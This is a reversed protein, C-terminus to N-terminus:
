LNKNIRGTTEVLLGLWKNKVDIKGNALSSKDILEKTEQKNYSHEVFSLEYDRTDRTVFYGVLWNIRLRNPHIFYFKGGTKLVRYTENFFKIAEKENLFPFLLSAMIIDFENNGFPLNVADGIRFDVISEVNYNIANERAIKLSRDLIDVGTIRVNVNRQRLEKALALTVQGPGCGVDLIKFLGNKGIINAVSKAWLEPAWPFFKNIVGGYYAPDYREKLNIEVKGDKRRM